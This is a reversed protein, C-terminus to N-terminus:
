YKKWFGLINQKLNKCSTMSAIVTPNKVFVRGVQCSKEWYNWFLKRQEWSGPTIGSHIKKPFLERVQLFTGLYKQFTKNPSLGPVIGSYKSIRTNMELTIERSIVAELSKKQFWHFIRQVFDQFVQFLLSQNSSNRFSVKSSSRFCNKLLREPAAESTIM